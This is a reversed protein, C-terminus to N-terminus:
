VDHVFRDSLAADYAAPVHWGWLVLAFGIWTVPMATVRGWVRGFPVAAHALAGRPCPGPGAAGVRRDSLSGCAAAGAGVGRDAAHAPAHARRLAQGSARRAALRARARHRPPRRARARAADPRDAELRPALPAVLRARLAWGGGPPSSRSGAPPELLSRRVRRRVGRRPSGPRASAGM